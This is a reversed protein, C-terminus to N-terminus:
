GGSVVQNEVLVTRLRLNAPLAGGRWKALIVVDAGAAVARLIAGDPLMTIVVEAGRAADKGSKVPTVGEPYTAIPDFGTVEHGAAKLHGAMPYGMVGSGLFAVKAM